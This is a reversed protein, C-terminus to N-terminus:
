SSVTRRRPSVSPPRLGVPPLGRRRRATKGLREVPPAARNPPRLPRALWSLTGGILLIARQRAAMDGVALSALEHLGTLGLARGDSRRLAPEGTRGAIPREGIRPQRRLLLRRACAAPRIRDGMEPPGLDHRQELGRRLQAGNGHELLHAATMGLEGLAHPPRDLTADPLPARQVTGLLVHHERLLMRRPAHAEGIEGVDRLEADGDGAGPELVPEIVEPEGEGAELMRVDHEAPLAIDRERLAQLIREPREAPHGLQVPAVAQRRREAIEVAVRLRVQRLTVVGEDGVVAHHGGAFVRPERVLVARDLARVAVQLAHKTVLQQQAAAPLEGVEVGVAAEDVLDDAPRLALFRLRM